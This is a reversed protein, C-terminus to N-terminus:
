DRLFPPDLIDPHHTRTAGPGAAPEPPGNPTLQTGPPDEAPQPSRRDRPVRERATPSTPRARQTEERTTEPEPVAETGGTALTELESDFSPGEIPRPPVSADDAPQHSGKADREETPHVPHSEGEPAGRLGLALWVLAAGLGGGVVAAVVVKASTASRRPTAALKRPGASDHRETVESARPAVETVDLAMTVALHGDEAVDRLAAVLALMDPFRHERDKALCRLVIREVAASITPDISRLPPPPTKVHAELVAFPSTSRFPVTGTLLKYLVIGLSYIDSRADIDRGYAQEPSMYAVTGLVDGTTTPARTIGGSEAVVKAIGFDLVKVRPRDGTALLFCNAPKVDRHVIGAQHAAHLAGAIEIAIARALPWPLPGRTRVLADLDIGELFEMVYYVPRADVPGFDVIDVINEHRIVSAARAERLFRRVNDPNEALHPMLVKIAVRRSLGVRRGEYVAAMGGIGLRRIVEYRGHLVTGVLEPQQGLGSDVSSSM